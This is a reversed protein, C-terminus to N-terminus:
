SQLETFLIQRKLLRRVLLCVSDVDKLARDLLQHTTLLMSHQDSPGEMIVRHLESPLMLPCELICLFDAISM